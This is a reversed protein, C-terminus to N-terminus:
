GRGRCSARGIEHGLRAADGIAGGSIRRSGSLEGDMVDVAAFIMELGRSREGAGISGILDSCGVDSSWDCLSMAHGSSSSVSLDDMVVTDHGVEVAGRVM